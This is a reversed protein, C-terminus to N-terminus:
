DSQRIIIGSATSRRGFPPHTRRPVDTLRTNEVMRVVTDDVVLLSNSPTTGREIASEARDITWRVSSEDTLM